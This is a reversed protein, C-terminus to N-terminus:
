TAVDAYQQADLPPEPELDEVTPLEAKEREEVEEQVKKGKANAEEATQSGEPLGMGRVYEGNWSALTEKPIKESKFSGDPGIMGKYADPSAEIQKRVRSLWEDYGEPKASEIISLRHKTLAEASQRYVSSEPLLKLKELTNRYTLILAPRPAPHTTLGTLGTPTNPELFTGPKVKALLRLTSRM